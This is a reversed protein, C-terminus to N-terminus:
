EPRRDLEVTSGTASFIAQEAIDVGHDGYREINRAVLIMRTAWELHPEDVSAAAVLRHFIGIDLRDVDEDIPAVDRAMEADEQVFAQMAQRSVQRALEGMEVLQEALEPADPFGASRQEMRAVNTAYDGLREVHINVHLMASLRRLDRAVPAQLAITNLIDHHIEGYRRDVEQDRAVVDEAADVDHGRLSELAGRLMDDAIESMAVLDRLLQDIQEHFDNRMPTRATGM